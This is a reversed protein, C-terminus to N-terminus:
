KTAISGASRASGGKASITVEGNASVAALGTGAKCRSRFDLQPESSPPEHWVSRLLLLVMSSGSTLPMNTGVLARPEERVEVLETHTTRAPPPLAATAGPARQGAAHSDEPRGLRLLTASSALTCLNPRGDKASEEKDPMGLSHPLGMPWSPRVHNGRSSPSPRALSPRLVLGALVAVADGSLASRRREQVLWRNTCVASGAPLGSLM